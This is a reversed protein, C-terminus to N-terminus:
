FSCVLSVRCPCRRELEATITGSIVSSLLASFRSSSRSDERLVAAEDAEDELLPAGEALLMVDERLMADERLLWLEDDDGPIPRVALTGTTRGTEASACVASVHEVSPVGGTTGPAEVLGARRVRCSATASKHWLLGESLAADGALPRGDEAPDKRREPEEDADEVDEDAGNARALLPPSLSNRSMLLAHRPARPSSPCDAASL